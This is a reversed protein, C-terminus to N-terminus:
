KKREQCVAIVMVSFCLNANKCGMKKQVISCAVLLYLWYSYFSPLWKWLILSLSLSYFPPLSLALFAPRTRHLAEVWM